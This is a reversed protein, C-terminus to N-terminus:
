RTDSLPVLEKEASEEKRVTESESGGDEIGSMGGGAGPHGRFPRSTDTLGDHGAFHPDNVVCALVQADYTSKKGQLTHECSVPPAMVYPYFISSDQLIM